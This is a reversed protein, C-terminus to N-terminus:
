LGSGTKLSLVRQTSSYVRHSLSTIIHIFFPHMAMYFSTIDSFRYLKKIQVQIHPYKKHRVGMINGDETWATIELDEPITEKKIVLSHYRCAQFPSCDPIKAHRPSSVKVNNYYRNSQGLHTLTIGFMM